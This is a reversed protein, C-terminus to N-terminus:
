KTTKGARGSLPSVSSAHKFFWQPVAAKLNAVMVAASPPRQLRPSTLISQAALVPQSTEARSDSHLDPLAPLMRGPSSGTQTPRVSRPPPREPPRFAAPLHRCTVSTAKKERVTQRVAGSLSWDYMHWQQQKALTSLKIWVDFWDQEMGSRHATESFLVTKLVNVPLTPATAAAATPSADGHLRRRHGQHSSAGYPSAPSLAPLGGPASTPQVAHRKYLYDVYDMSIGGVHRAPQVSSGAQHNRADSAVPGAAVYHMDCPHIHEATAPARSSSTACSASGLRAGGPHGENASGGGRHLAAYYHETTEGSGWASSSASTGGCAAHSGPPAPPTRVPDAPKAIYQQELFQRQAEFEETYIGGYYASSSSVHYDYLDRGRTDDPGGADDEAYDAFTATGGRPDVPPPDKRAPPACGATDSGGTFRRATQLQQLYMLQRHRGDLIQQRAHQEHALLDTMQSVEALRQTKGCGVALFVLESAMSDRDVDLIAGDTPSLPRPPTSM